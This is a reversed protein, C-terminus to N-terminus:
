KSKNGLTYYGYSNKLYHNHVILTHNGGVNTM